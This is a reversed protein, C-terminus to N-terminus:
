NIGTKRKKDGAEKTFPNIGITFLVGGSNLKVKGFGVGSLPLKLYPEAMLSINKGARWQYGGSLTLVSFWHSNENNITYSHKYLPGYPVYSYTYDYTERKMIYSSLGATLLGKHKNSKGFRYSVLLPIEYVRCDANVRDLYPYYTYFNAPPNYSKPSADYVKSATFFGSRVMVREGITYGLGLGFVLKTKGWREGAAYSIDPGASVNFSFRNKNKSQLKKGPSSVTAAVTPMEETKEPQVPKKVEEKPPAKQEKDANAIAEKHAGPDPEIRAPVPPATMMKVPINNKDRDYGVADKDGPDTQINGAFDKTKVPVPSVQRRNGGKNNKALPLVGTRITNGPPVDKRIQQHPSPLSGTSQTAAPVKSKEKIILDPKGPNKEPSNRKHAAPALGTSPDPVSSVPNTKEKGSSPISHPVNAEQRKDGTRGLLLFTGGSILLALLLIFFIRRRGKDEEPLHKDLLKRM